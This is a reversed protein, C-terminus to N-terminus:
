IANTIVHGPEHKAVFVTAQDNGALAQMETYYEAEESDSCSSCICINFNISYETM